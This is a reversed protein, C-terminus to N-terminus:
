VPKTANIEQSVKKLTTKSYEKQTTRIDEHGLICQITELSLGQEQAYTAFTKRLSHFKYGSIGLHQKARTFAKSVTDKLRIEWFLYGQEIRKRYIEYYKMKPTSAMIETQLNPDKLIGIRRQILDLPEPLWPDTSSISYHIPYIRLEYTHCILHFRSGYGCVIEMFLEQSFWFANFANTIAIGRCELMQEEPVALGHNNRDATNHFIRIDSVIDDLIYEKLNPYM